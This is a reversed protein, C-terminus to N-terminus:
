LGNNILNRCKKNMKRTSCGNVKTTTIKNSNIINTTIIHTQTDRRNPSVFACVNCLLTQKVSIVKKDPLGSLRTTSHLSSTSPQPYWKPFHNFVKPVTKRQWSNTPNINNLPLVPQRPERTPQTFIIVKL